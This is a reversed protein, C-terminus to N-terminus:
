DLGITGGDTIGEFSVGQYTSGTCLTDSIALEFAEPKLYTNKM